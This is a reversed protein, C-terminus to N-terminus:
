KWRAPLRMGRSERGSEELKESYEVIVLLSSEVVVGSVIAPLLM